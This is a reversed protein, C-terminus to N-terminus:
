IFICFGLKIDMETEPSLLTLQSFCVSGPPRTLVEDSDGARLLVGKKLESIWNMQTDQIVWHTSLKNSMTFKFVKSFLESHRGSGYMFNHFMLEETM